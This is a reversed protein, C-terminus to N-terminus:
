SGGRDESDRLCALAGVEYRDGQVPFGPYM